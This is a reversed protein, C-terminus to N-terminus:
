WHCRNLEQQWAWQLLSSIRNAQESEPQRWLSEETLPQRYGKWVLSGCFGCDAFLNV